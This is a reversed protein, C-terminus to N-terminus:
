SPPAEHRPIEGRARALVENGLAAPVLDYRRSYVDLLLREVSEIGVGPAEEAVAGVTAPDWDLQLARYVSELVRRVNSSSAIVVVTSLLWGGRVIRQAAGILKRRGAANVSFGGPCYEGPVGGVRADVGVGRLAEAQREADLTFRERIGALSDTAPMIEDFVLCGEDYAAARGGPARIVPAFGQERAASAAGAFGPLFADRRGFAVTRAPRYSRVLPGRDGRAVDGLLLASLAVELAPERGPGGRLLEVASV